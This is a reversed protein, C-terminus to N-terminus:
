NPKNNWYHCPLRHLLFEGSLISVIKWDFNTKYPLRVSAFLVYWRFLCFFVCVYCLWRNYFEVLNGFLGHMCFDKGCGSKIEVNGNMNSINSFMSHVHLNIWRTRTAMSNWYISYSFAIPLPPLAANAPVISFTTDTAHKGPSFPFIESEM